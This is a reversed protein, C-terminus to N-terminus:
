ELPIKILNKKKILTLSIICILTLLFLPNYGPVINNPEQFEGIIVYNETPMILPYYDIYQVDGDTFIIPTEGIGDGNIDSGHYQNWYNGLYNTYTNGNYLYIIKNITNWIFTSNRDFYANYNTSVLDNMYFRNNHSDRIAIGYKNVFKNGVINNDHSRELSIGYKDNYVTNNEINANVVNYLKIGADTCYNLTCNTIFFYANSNEILICTDSGGGDIEFFNIIYPNSSTGDGSCNGANKFDLWGSNGDIHIRPSISSSKIDIDNNCYNLTNEVLFGINLNIIVFLFVSIGLIALIKM